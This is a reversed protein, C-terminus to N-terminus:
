VIVEAVERRKFILWGPLLLLACGYVLTHLACSGLTAFSIYLGDVLQGTGSYRVFDPFVIKMMMVPLDRITQTVQGTASPLYTGMSEIWFPLGLSILFFACTCLCAVPFSVFVGFFIGIASLLALRMLFIALVKAYNAEFSGAQYLLLLADDGEFLIQTENVPDYPNFVVLEAKGERIVPQASALFQHVYGSREEMRTPQHLPNKTEPDLFMWASVLVENYPLPIGIAKYRIQFVTDDRGPPTLNEFRYRRNGGSPITEWRRMLKKYLDALAKPRTSPDLSGSEIQGDVEQTAAQRLEDVPVVPKAAVRATWVVDRVKLRDRQFQEPRSQIFYAFGYIAGGCLVLIVLNLLNVGLWKGLLIQFRSVPKTVVLHLSCEKFENALTACSFFVTALSLLLSLASLSYSLFNQLRGALTDDGRLAFPLRMVLFVLVVLFILVIRMRVGESFTLRAIALVRKM